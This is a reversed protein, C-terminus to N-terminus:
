AASANIPQPAAAATQPAVRAAPPHSAASASNKQVGSINAPLRDRFPIEWGFYILAGIILIELLLRMLPSANGFFQFSFLQFVSRYSWLVVLIVRGVSCGSCPLLRPNCPDLILFGRFCSSFFRG